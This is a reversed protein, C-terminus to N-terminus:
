IRAGNWRRYHNEYSTGREDKKKYIYFTSLIYPWISHPCQLAYAVTLMHDYIGDVCPKDATGDARITQRIADTTM